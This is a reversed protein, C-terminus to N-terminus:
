PAPPVVGETWSEGREVIRHEKAMPPTERIKMLTSGGCSEVAEGVDHWQKGDPSSQWQYIRAPRAHFRIERSGAEESILPECRFDEPKSRRRFQPVRAFAHYNADHGAHPPGNPSQWAARVTLLLDEGEILFWPYQLGFTTHFYKGSIPGQFASRVTATDEAYLRHDHMIIREISWDTLNASSVLALVGRFREANYRDNRFRRPIYNCVSWYRNSVNDYRILFRLGGGPFHIFGSPHNKRSDYTEPTFHIRPPSSTAPEVHILAAIGGIGAGNPHRHDVRLSALLHGERTVLPSGELWGRFTGQLWSSDATLTNSSQWTDAKLLDAHPGAHIVKIQNDAWRPSRQNELVAWFGSRDRFVLPGCAWTKGHEPALLRGRKEDVMTWSKGHDDSRRIVLPGSISAAGMSFLKQDDQFLAQWYVGEDDTGPQTLNRMEGEMNWTKGEDRSRVFFTQGIKGESSKPGFWDHSSLLSGDACRTLMPSGLYRGSSAPSYAIVIGPIETPFSSRQAPLPHFPFLLCGACWRLIPAITPIRKPQTM